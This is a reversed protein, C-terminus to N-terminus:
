GAKPEKLTKEFASLADRCRKSQRALLKAEQEWNANTLPKELKGIVNLMAKLDGKVYSVAEKIDM